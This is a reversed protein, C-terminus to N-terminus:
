RDTSGRSNAGCHHGREYDRDDIQVDRTMAVTGDRALDDCQCLGAHVQTDAVQGHKNRGDHSCNRSPKEHAMVSLDFVPPLAALLVNLPKHTAYCYKPYQTFSAQNELGRSNQWDPRFEAELSVAKVRQRPVDEQDDPKDGDGVDNAQEQTM